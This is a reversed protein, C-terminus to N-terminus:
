YEFIEKLHLVFQNETIEDSDEITYVANDGKVIACYNGDNNETNIRCIAVEYNGITTKNLEKFSSDLMEVDNVKIEVVQNKPLELEVVGYLVEQTNSFSLSYKKEHASLFDETGYQKQWQDESVTKLRGGFKANSHLSDIQNIVVNDVSSDIEQSTQTPPNEVTKYLNNNQHIVGQIAFIGVALMVCAVLATMALINRHKKYSTNSVETILEDDIDGIAEFLQFSTM